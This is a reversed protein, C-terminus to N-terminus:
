AAGGLASPLWQAHASVMADALADIRGVDISAATSPDVLLARRILAPDQEVMARVTLDVVNLYARNLAACVPPLDGVHPFRAGAAEVTCPVEVPAGTPLNTILDTNVTNAQIVRPTNTVMSHIVQPAYEAADEEPQAYTDGPLADLREFEAVNAASIDVYDRVPIRLREIEAEDHLYWPVYEASHESTETPYYGLRRYM